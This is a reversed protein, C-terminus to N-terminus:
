LSCFRCKSATSKGDFTGAPRRSTSNSCAHTLSMIARRLCDDDDRVSLDIDFAERISDSLRCCPSAAQSDVVRKGELFGFLNHNRLELAGKQFGGESAVLSIDRSCCFCDAHIALVQLSLECLVPDLSGRKARDSLNM